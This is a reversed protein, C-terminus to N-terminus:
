FNGRFRPNRCFVNTPLGIVVAVITACGTEDVVCRNARRDGPHPRSSGPRALLRGVAEARPVAAVCLRREVACPRLRAGCGRFGRPKEAALLTAIMADAAPSKVGPFNFSGQGDAAASSWRNNQENGPSLSVNWTNEFMDFDFNRRRRQYQADDVQRIGVEIGVEHLDRAFVVFLREQERTAALMEFRFPEGTAKNIM